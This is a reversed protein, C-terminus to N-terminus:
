TTFAWVHILETDGSSGVKGRVVKRTLTRGEANEWKDEASSPDTLTALDVEALPPEFVKVGPRFDATYEAAALATDVAEAPGRLALRVMRDMGQAEDIAVVALGTTADFGTWSQIDTTTMATGRSPQVSRDSRDSQDSGSCAPAGAALAATLLAALIATRAPSAAPM